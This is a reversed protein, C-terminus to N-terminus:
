RLHPTLNYRTALTCTITCLTSAYKVLSFYQDSVISRGGGGVKVMVSLRVWVRVWVSVGIRNYDSNLRLNTPSPTTPQMALSSLLTLSRSKLVKTSQPVHTRINDADAGVATVDGIASINLSRNVRPQSWAFPTATFSEPM